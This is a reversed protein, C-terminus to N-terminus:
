DRTPEYEAEMDMLPVALLHGGPSPEPADDIFTKRGTTPDVLLYMGGKYFGVDVVLFGTGALPGRYVYRVWSDGALLGLLRRPM